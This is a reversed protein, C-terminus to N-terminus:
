SRALYVMWLRSCKLIQNNLITNSVNIFMSYGNKFELMVGNKEKKFGNINNFSIWMVKSKDKIPFFIINNKESIILPTKYCDGLINKSGIKRGLLSSGYYICSNNLINKLLNGGFVYDLENERVLTNDGDYEIFLTNNTIKFM